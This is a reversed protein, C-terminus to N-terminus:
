YKDKWNWNNGFHIFKFLFIMDDLDLHIIGQIIKYFYFYFNMKILYNPYWTYIVLVNFDFVYVYGLLVRKVLIFCVYAVLM